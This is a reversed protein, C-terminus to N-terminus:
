NETCPGLSSELQAVIVIKTFIKANLAWHKLLIQCFSFYFLIIGFNSPVVIYIQYQAENMHNPDM